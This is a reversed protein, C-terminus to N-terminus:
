LQKVQQLYTTVKHDLDHPYEYELHNAVEIAVRQFLAITKFLANWNEEIGAGVYSSKLESWIEPRLYKKLEEDYIGTKIQGHYDLEIQWKLMQHLYNHKMMSDLDYKAPILEDRWLNKAVDLAYSFFKEIVTQYTKNTPLITIYTSYTPKKMGKTIHDKDVLVTYGLDLSTPLVAAKVTQQLLEVPWFTFDIEFNDEYQAMSIFQEISPNLTSPILDAKAIVVQGFNQLWTRDDFFPHIDVVALLVDYDSLVNATAKLNARTSTLLMARIVTQNEAWQILQPVVEGVQNTNIM